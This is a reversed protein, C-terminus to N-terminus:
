CAGEYSPSTRLAMRWSGDLRFEFSRRCTRLAAMRCSSRASIYREATVYMSM